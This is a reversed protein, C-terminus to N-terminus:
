GGITVLDIITEMRKEGIGEVRMLGEPTGFAGNEERYDVIRQALVDGIGPLASLTEKDATNINVPFVAADSSGIPITEQINSKEQVPQMRAPVSLTITQRNQNRGLFFGLTFALFLCTIVVLIPFRPKKM